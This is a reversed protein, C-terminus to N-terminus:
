MLFKLIRFWCAVEGDLFIRLIMFKNKGISIEINYSKCIYVLQDVVEIIVGQPIPTYVGVESDKAPM